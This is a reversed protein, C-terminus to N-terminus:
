RRDPHDGARARALDDRRGARRCGPRVAAVADRRNLTRRPGLDAAARVRRKAESPSIRLLGRLLAADSVVCMERAVSRDRLEAVLAHDAVPLRRKFQEFRRTVDLLADRDLGVLDVALLADLGASLSALADTAITAAPSQLM